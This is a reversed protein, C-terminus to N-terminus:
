FFHFVWGEKYMTWLEAVMGYWVIYKNGKREDKDSEKKEKRKAELSM